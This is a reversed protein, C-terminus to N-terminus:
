PRAYGDSAWKKIDGTLRTQAPTSAKLDIRMELARKKLM